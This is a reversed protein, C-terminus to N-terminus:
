GFCNGCSRGHRALAVRSPHRVGENYWENWDIKVQLRLAKEQTHNDHNWAILKEVGAKM